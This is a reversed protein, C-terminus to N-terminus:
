LSYHSRPLDPSLPTQWLSAVDSSLHLIRRLDACLQPQLLACCSEVTECFSVHWAYLERTQLLLQEDLVESGPFLFGLSRDRREVSAKLLPEPVHGLLTAIASERKRCLLLSRYRLASRGVQLTYAVDALHLEAHQSLYDALNLEMRQLASETKASLPLLYWSEQSPSTQPIPAEELIMHVNTGGLGFSSIGARRPGNEAPWPRLTTNVYFASNSLDNEASSQEYNLSPPLQKHYLALVTKILGVVGSARDLHGVNPKVSGIACFQKKNTQAEFAKRMAALEVADGLRTGTGHTEIYSISEAPVDAYSLAGLIASAQGDVSPATYSVRLSGDNNITSGRILAYITDGDQLADSFRKLTVVGVGSGMVSGQAKADFARCEGDPSLIGGQEYLYGYGNPPIQLCVGGALAIDSEYNLLSQCAMHVAVLSTSCFTQVAVAPGRLNLKYSIKSSLSDRDNSAELQIEGVSEMLDKHPYINHIYYNAFTSGAFVGILGRYTSPDYGAHELAQWTCELFLRHQPDMVMAERPTYGFFTADFRDIDPLPAGAKVYNPLSLQAPDVGAALLEEDSFFRISKVGGAINQWFAEADPASPFHGSMGVLALTSDYSSDYDQM